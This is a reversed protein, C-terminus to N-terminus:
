RIVKMYKIIACNDIILFYPNMELIYSFFPHIKFIPKSNADKRAVIVADLPSLGQVLQLPFCLRRAIASFET